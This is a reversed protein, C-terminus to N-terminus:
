EIFSLLKEKMGDLCNMVSEKEADSYRTQEIVEKCNILFVLRKNKRQNAVIVRVEEKGKYDFRESLIVQTSKKSLIDNDFNFGSFDYIKM